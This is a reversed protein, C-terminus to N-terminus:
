FEEKEIEETDLNGNTQLYLEVEWWTVSNGYDEFLFTEDARNYSTDEGFLRTYGYWEDGCAYTLVYEGFPINADVSMGARVFFSLVVDNTYVDRLKVYYNANSGAEITILGCGDEPYGESSPYVIRGNPPLLAPTLTVTPRPTITPPPTPIPRFTPAPTSVTPAPTVFTPVKVDSQSPSIMVAFVICGVIALVSAIICLTYAIAPTKKTKKTPAAAQQQQQKQNSQYNNNNKELEEALAGDYARKKQPDKLVSYILNLTQTRKTAIEPPVNGADPHFYRIQKLYAARIEDQTAYFRPVGLIAYYDPFNM